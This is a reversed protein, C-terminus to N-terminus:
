DVVKRRGTRIFLQTCPADPACKMDAATHKRVNREVQTPM